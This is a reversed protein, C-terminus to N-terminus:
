SEFIERDFTGSIIADVALQEMIVHHADDWRGASLLHAAMLDYWEESGARQAKACFVWESPVSLKEIVFSESPQLQKNPSCNRALTERVASMSLVSDQLHLLVFVAWKWKGSHELQSAFSTVLQSTTTPSMHTYGLANLLSWM